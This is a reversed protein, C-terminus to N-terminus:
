FSLLSRALGFGFPRKRWEGVSKSTGGDGGGKAWQNARRPQSRWRKRKESVSKSTGGDGKMTKAKTARRQHIRWRKRKEQAGSISGGDNKSKKRASSPDAM